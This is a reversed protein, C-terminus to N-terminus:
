LVFTCLSAEVGRFLNNFQKQGRPLFILVLAFRFSHPLTNVYFLVTDLYEEHLWSVFNLGAFPM